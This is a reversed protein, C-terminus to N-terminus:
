SEVAQPWPRQKESFGIRKLIKFHTVYGGRTPLLVSTSASVTAPASVAPQRDLLSGRMFWPTRVIPLPRPVHRSAVGLYRSLVWSVEGESVERARHRRM